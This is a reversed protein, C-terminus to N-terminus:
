RLKKGKEKRRKLMRQHILGQIEEVRLPHHPHGVETHIVTRIVILAIVLGAEIQQHRDKWHDIELVIALPHCDTQGRDTGQYHVTGTVHYHVIGPQLYDITHIIETEATHVHHDHIYKIGLIFTCM